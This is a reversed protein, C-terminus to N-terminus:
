RILIKHHIANVQEIVSHLGDNQIIFDSQRVKEEEDWQSKIRKSVQGRTVGDREMVRKIRLEEPCTITILIDLHKYSGSEFLLAAEKILYKTSNQLQAWKDFDMGVAPHVISNIYTLADSNNFIIQAIRARNLQNNEFIDDGFYQILQSKLQNNESMLEKARTDAYYVPIGFSEFISCVMTKGSGIGGTIGAKIM